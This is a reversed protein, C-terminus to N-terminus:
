PNNSLGAGGLIGGYQLGGFNQQGMVSSFPNQAAPNFPPTYGGPMGAGGAPLQSSYYNPNGQQSRGFLNATAQLGSQFSQARQQDLDALKKQAGTIEGGLLGAMRQMRDFEGQRVRADRGRIANVAAQEITSLGAGAGEITKQVGSQLGRQDGEALLEIVDATQQMLGGEARRFPDMDVQEEEAYNVDYMSKLQGMMRDIRRQEAKMKNKKSIGGLIGMAPGMFPLAGQVVSGVGSMLGGLGGGTAGAVKAGSLKGLAMGGKGLLGGLGKAGLLKGGGALLAKGGAALAAGTAIAM